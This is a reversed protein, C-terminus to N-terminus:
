RGFPWKRSGKPCPLVLRERVEPSLRDVHLKGSGYTIRVESLVGNSLRKKSDLVQRLSPDQSSIVQFVPERLPCLLEDDLMDLLSCSFSGEPTGPIWRFHHYDFWPYYSGEVGIVHWVLESCLTDGQAEEEFPDPLEYVFARASEHM